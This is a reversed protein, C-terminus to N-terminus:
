GVPGDLGGGRQDGSALCITHASVFFGLGMPDLRLKKEQIMRQCGKGKGMPSTARCRNEETCHSVNKAEQADRRCKNQQRKSESEGM